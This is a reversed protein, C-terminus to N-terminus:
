WCLLTCRFLSKWLISDSLELVLPKWLVAKM